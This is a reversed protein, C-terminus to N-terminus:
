EVLVAKLVKQSSVKMGSTEESGSIEGLASHPSPSKSNWRVRKQGDTADGEGGDSLEISRKRNEM